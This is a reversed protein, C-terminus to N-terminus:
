IDLVPATIGVAEFIINTVWWMGLPLLSCMFLFMFVDFWSYQKVSPGYMRGWLFYLAYSVFVSPSILFFAIPNTFIFNFILFNQEIIVGILGGLLMMISVPIGLWVGGLITLAIGIYFGLVSLLHEDIARGADLAVGIEPLATGLVVLAFIVKKSLSSLLHQVFACPYIYLFFAYPWLIFLLSWASIEIVLVSYLIVGFLMVGIARVIPHWRFIIFDAVSSPKKIVWCIVLVLSLLSAIVSIM